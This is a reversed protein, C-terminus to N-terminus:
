RAHDVAAESPEETESAGAGAAAMGLGEGVGIASGPLIPGVSLAQILTELQCGELRPLFLDGQSVVFCGAAAQSAAGTWAAVRGAAQAVAGAPSDLTPVGLLGLSALCTATVIRLTRANM